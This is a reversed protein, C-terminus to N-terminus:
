KAGIWAMGDPGQGTSLRRTVEMTQLDIEAVNHDTTVGVLARKGDPLMLIGECYSGLKLVKLRQHTAADWFSLEGRGLDAALVRKGDLTFRVRALQGTLTPFTKIVKGDAVNIVAMENSVRCGVWLEKGDPSVDLGQPAKCVPIITSKWASADLPSGTLQFMNVTDSGRNATFITKGDPTFVLNHSTNQGTGMIMVVHDTVPDYAGVVRSDEATFYFRGDRYVVGHPKYMPGLNVRRIEKRKVVDILSLTNGPDSNAGTNTAVAYKGDSSVALEHPERGVPVRAVVQGSALNVYAIDGPQDAGTKIKHLVLLDATLAADQAQATWATIGCIFLVAILTLSQAKYLM